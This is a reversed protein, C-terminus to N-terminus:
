LCIKNNVFYFGGAKSTAMCSFSATAFALFCFGQLTNDVGSRRSNTQKYSSFNIAFFTM